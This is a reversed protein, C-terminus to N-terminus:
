AFTGLYDVFVHRSLEAYLSAFYDGPDRLCVHWEIQTAGSQRAAAELAQARRPELLFTEFDESTLIATPCRRTTAFRLHERIGVFNDELAAWSTSHNANMEREPEFYINKSQLAGRNMM